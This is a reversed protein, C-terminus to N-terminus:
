IELNGCHLLLTIINYHYIHLFYYYARHLAQRVGMLISTKGEPTILSLWPIVHLRLGIPAHGACLQARRPGAHGAVLVAAGGPCISRWRGGALVESGVRARGAGMGVWQCARCVLFPCVQLTQVMGVLLWGLIVDPSLCSALRTCSLQPFPCAMLM